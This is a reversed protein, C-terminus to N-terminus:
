MVAMEVLALRSVMRRMVAMVVGVAFTAAMDRNRVTVVDVVDVVSAAVSLMVPVVVLM